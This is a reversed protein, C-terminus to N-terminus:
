KNRSRAYSRYIQICESFVQDDLYEVPDHGSKRLADAAAAVGRMAAGVGAAPHRGGVVALHAIASLAFPALLSDRFRDERLYRGDLGFVSEFGAIYREGFLSHLTECTTAYVLDILASEPPMLHARDEDAIDVARLERHGDDVLREDVLRIIGIERGADILYGIVVGDAVPRPMTFKFTIPM